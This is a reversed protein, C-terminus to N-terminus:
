LGVTNALQAVYGFVALALAALLGCTCADAEVVTFQGPRSIVLVASLAVTLAPSWIPKVIVTLFLPTPVAVPTVNDSGSGVPVPMLQDSLGSLGFQLMAPLVNLQEKPSRAECAVRV